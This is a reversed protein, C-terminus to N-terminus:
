KLEFPELVNNGETVTATLGSRNPDSYRGGLRDRPSFSEAHMGPPIPENWVVTAKYRGAPAGDGEEYSTLRFAGDEQVEGEPIPTNSDRPEVAYLVVKAGAAPEGRYIVKGRVPYVAVRNNSEGCGGFLIFWGGLVACHRLHRNRRRDYDREVTTRQM